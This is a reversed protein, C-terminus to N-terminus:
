EVRSLVVETSLRWFAVSRDGDYLGASFAAQGMRGGLARIAQAIAAEDDHAFIARTWSGDVPGGTLVLTYTNM